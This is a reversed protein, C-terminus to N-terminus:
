LARRICLSIIPSSMCDKDTQQFFSFKAILLPVSSLIDMSINSVHWTSCRNQFKTFDVWEAGSSIYPLQQFCLLFKVVDLINNGM